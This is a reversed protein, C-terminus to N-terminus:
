IHILSLTEYAHPTIWITSGYAEARAYPVIFDLTTLYSNTRNLPLEISDGETDYWTVLDDSYACMLEQLYLSSTRNVVGWTLLLRDNGAGDDVIRSITYAAFGTGDNIITNELIWTADDTIDTCNWIRWILEDEIPAVRGHERMMLHIDGDWPFLYFYTYDLDGNFPFNYVTWNEKDTSYAIKLTGLNSHEGYVVVYYEGFKIIAPTGHYDEPIPDTGIVYDHLEEFTSSDYIKLNTNNDPIGTQYPILIEGDDYIGRESSFGMVKFGEKESSAWGANVTVIDLFPSLPSICLIVLILIGLAKANKRKYYKERWIRRMEPTSKKSNPKRGCAKKQPLSPAMITCPLSELKLM